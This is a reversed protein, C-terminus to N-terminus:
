PMRISASKSVTNPGNKAPRMPANGRKRFERLSLKRFKRKSRNSLFACCNKPSVALSRLEADTAFRFISPSMESPQLVSSLASANSLFPQFVPVPQPSLPQSARLEAALSSLTSLMPYPYPDLRSWVRLRIGIQFARYRDNNGKLIVRFVSKEFANEGIANKQPSPLRFSTVSPHNEAPFGPFFASLSYLAFPAIANRRRFPRCPRTSRHNRPLHPM